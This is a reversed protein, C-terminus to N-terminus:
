RCLPAMWEAMKMISVNVDAIQMNTINMWRMMSLFAVYIDIHHYKVLFFRQWKEGLLFFILGSNLWMKLFGAKLIDLILPSSWSHQLNRLQNVGENQSCLLYM